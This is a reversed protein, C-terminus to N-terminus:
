TVMYRLCLTLTVVVRFRSYKGIDAADSTLVSTGWKQGDHNLCEPNCKRSDLVAASGHTLGERSAGLKDSM